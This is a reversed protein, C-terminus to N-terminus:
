LSIGSMFYGVAAGVVIKIITDVILEYKKVPQKELTDVQNILEELMRMSKDQKEIIHTYDNKSLAADIELKTVRNNLGKMEDEMKEVARNMEAENM